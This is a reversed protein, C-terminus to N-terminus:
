EAMYSFKWALEGQELNICYVVKDRGHIFVHDDLIYMPALTQYGVQITRQMAGSQKELLYLEGSESLVVLLDGWFVPPAVIRGNGTFQWLEMGTRANLAYVKHDLCGAYVVDDKILPQAWFWGEGKFKWQESGDDKDIAYLNHDFTGFVISNESAVPSSAIAAPLETEWVASGDQKSIASLNRAYNGVYVIDGNVVPTSWIKGGTDFEWRKEGYGSDIAYLRGDSSGIFLTDDDMVLNGVVSGIQKTEGPYVWEGRSRMPSGESYGPNLRNIAMVKGKDGAYTAVYVLDETVAPTSYFATAAATPMCGIPGCLSGAPRGLGVAKFRWEGDGPFSQSQNRAEPNVALVEGNMSGLYLIGDYEAFGSWGQAETQTCSIASLGIITIAIFILLARLSTM